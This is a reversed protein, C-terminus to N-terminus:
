FGGTYGAVKLAAQSVLSVKPCDEFDILTSRRSWQRKIPAINVNVLNSCGRFAYSIDYYGSGDEWGWRKKGSDYGHWWGIMTCSDPITVSTLNKCDSFARYGITTVGEPLVVSELGSKYFAQPMIRTVGAPINISKLSTCEYFMGIIIATLGQPLRVAELSSCGAFTGNDQSGNYYFSTDDGRFTVSVLKECFQFAALGIPQVVEPIDVSVLGSSTFAYSGIDTISDPMTVAALSSCGSFAREEIKTIGEPITVAIIDNKNRFAEKGIVRVPLGQIMGPINVYEKEGTYAQILVGDGSETFGVKFDEEPTIRARERTIFAPSLVGPNSKAALRRVNYFGQETLPLFILGVAKGIAQGASAYDDGAVEPVDDWSGAQKAGTKLDAIEVYVPYNYGDTGSELAISLERRPEGGSFMGIVGIFTGGTVSAGVLRTETNGRNVLAYQAFLNRAVIDYSMGAMRLFNAYPVALPLNPNYRAAKEFNSPAGSLAPKGLEFDTIGLGALAGRTEADLTVCGGFAFDGLRELVPVGEGNEAAPVNAVTTLGACHLFAGDGIEKLSEPLTVNELAACNAFAFRGIVTVGEPIVVSTIDANDAFAYPGILTVQEGDIEAPIVVSKRKGSYGTLAGGSEGNEASFDKVSNPRDSGSGSDKGGGCAALVAGLILAVVLAMYACKKM